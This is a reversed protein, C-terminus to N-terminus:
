IQYGWLAHDNWHIDDLVVPFPDTDKILLCLDVLLDTSISNYLLQKACQDNTQDYEDYLTLQTKVLTRAIDLTFHPFDEVFNYMTTQTAADPLHAITDLGRDVMADWFDGKFLEFNSGKSYVPTIGKIRANYGMQSALVQFSRYQNLSQNTTLASPDLGSWDVLPLGGTWAVFETTSTQM